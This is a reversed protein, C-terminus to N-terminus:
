RSPTKLARMAKPRFWEAGIARMVSHEPADLQTLPRLGRGAVIQALSLDDAEAPPLAPTAAWNIWLKSNREIEMVDAHKTIAWFPRYPPCDVWCVPTHSRLRTLAAHLRGDDAYATPDAFSM